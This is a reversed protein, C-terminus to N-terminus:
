RSWVPAWFTNVEPNSYLYREVTPRRGTTSLYIGDAGQLAIRGESSWSPRGYLGSLWRRPTGGDVRAMWVSDPTVDDLSIAHQYLLQKGDPSWAPMRCHTDCGESVLWQEDDELDYVYIQWTGDEDSMFAIRSGDPSWTPARGSLGLPTTSGEDLDMLWLEGSEDLSTGAPTQRYVILRDLNADPETEDLQPTETLRSLTEEAPLTYTPDIMSAYLDYDGGASVVTGEDTEESVCNSQYLVWEGGPWWAPETANCEGNTFIPYNGEGTDIDLVVIESSEMSGSGFALRLPIADEEEALVTFCTTSTDGGGFGLDFTTGDESYGEPNVNQLLVLEYESPTTPADYPMEFAGDEDTQVDVQAVLYGQYLRTQYIGLHLLTDSSLYQGGLMMEQGPSYAYHCGETASFPDVPGTPWNDLAPYDGEGFYPTYAPVSLVTETSFDQDEATVTATWDGKTAQKIWTLNVQLVSGTLENGEEDLGTVPADEVFTRSFTNGDPDTLEVKIEAGEPFSCLYLIAYGETLYEDDVVLTPLDPLEGEDLCNILVDADGGDGVGGFVLVEPLVVDTSAAEGEAVEIEVGLEPGFSDGDPARLQWTGSHSGAEAPATLDVSLTVSEGPEVETRLRSTRSSDMREGEVFILRYTRDWTCDGENRLTWSVTFEADPAMTTAAPDSTQEVLEAENSCGQAALPLAPQAATAILTIFLVLLHPLRQRM